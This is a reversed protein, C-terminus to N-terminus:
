IYLEIPLVVTNNGNWSQTIYIRYYRYFAPTLIDYGISTLAPYVPVVADVVDLLNVWTIGDTSGQFQYNRPHYQSGWGWVDGLRGIKIVKCPTGLDIANWAPYSSTQTSWGQGAVITTSWAYEKFSGTNATVLTSPTDLPIPINIRTGFYGSITEVKKVVNTSMMRSIM